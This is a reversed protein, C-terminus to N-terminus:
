MSSALELLQHESLAGASQVTYWIGHNIWAANGDGYTYVTLGNLDNSQYAPDQLAVFSTLLSDSSLNTEKQTITYTREDSNSDFKASVVGSNTALEQMHFGAPHYGPLQVEFGAKASASDLRVNPLNQSAVVGLLLVALSAAGALSTLRKRRDRKAKKAEHHAIEHSNAHRLAHELIDATTKAKAAKKTAPRPAGIPKFVPLAVPEFDSKVPAFHSVFRSKDITKALKLRKPDVQAVSAKPAIVTTAPIDSAAQAKIRAKAAPKKVAHRMLTHSAKPSHASNHKAAHRGPKPGPADPAKHDHSLVEGTHADYKKGNIEIINNNKGVHSGPVQSISKVNM